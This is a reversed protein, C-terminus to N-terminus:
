RELAGEDELIDVLKDARLSEDMQFVLLEAANTAVQVVYLCQIM